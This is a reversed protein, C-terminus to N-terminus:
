LVSDRCAGVGLGAAKLVERSTGFLNYLSNMAERVSDQDVELVYEKGIGM